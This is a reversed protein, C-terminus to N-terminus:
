IRGSEENAYGTRVTRISVPPDAGKPAKLRLDRIVVAVRSGVYIM